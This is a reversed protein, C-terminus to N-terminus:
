LFLLINIENNIAELRSKANRIDHTNEHLLIMVYIIIPDRMPLPMAICRAEEEFNYHSSIIYMYYRM